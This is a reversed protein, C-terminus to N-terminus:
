ARFRLAVKQYMEGVISLEPNGVLYAFLFYAAVGLCIDLGLPLVSDPPGWPLWAAGIIVAAMGVSALTTKGVSIAVRRLGLPGLKRRLGYILLGM